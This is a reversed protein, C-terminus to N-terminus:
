AVLHPLATVLQPFLIILLLVLMQLLIFPIAGHYIHGKTVQPPTVRRLSFLAFGFPPTLFSSQLNAGIGIFLDGVPVGLQDALVVLVISPPSIQGLTGSDAIVGTALGDRVRELVRGMVELLPM